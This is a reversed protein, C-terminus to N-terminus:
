GSVPPAGPPALRLQRPLEVRASGERGDVEVNWHVDMPLALQIGAAEFRRLLALNVTSKAIAHKAYENPFRDKQEPKWKSIAYWFELEIYGHGIVDVIEWSIPDLMDQHDAVVERFIQLARELQEPSTRPDLKPRSEYFYCGQSDINTVLNNTFNTNPIMVLRGYWNKIVTSRFGIHQVWGNVGAVEIRDGVKFPHQTLVIVGGFLNSVTDQSALALAVGGIGLGALVATVEVGISALASAFGVTWILVDMITQLVAFVHPEISSGPRQAYPLFVGKHIAGYARALLWTLILGVAFTIGKALLERTSEPMALSEFAVRLGFLLVFLMVPAGVSEAIIGAIKWKTRKALSRMLGSVIRGLVLAGVILALSILWQQITNGWIEHDLSM